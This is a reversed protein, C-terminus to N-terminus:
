YDWEPQQNSVGGDLFSPSVVSVTRAGEGRSHTVGIPSPWVGVPTGEWSTVPLADNHPQGVIWSGFRGSCDGPDLEFSPDDHVPPSDLDHYMMDGNGPTIWTCTVVGERPRRYAHRWTISAHFWKMGCLWWFEVPWNREVAADSLQGGSTPVHEDHAIGLSIEITRATGERVIAEADGYWNSWFGTTRHDDGFPPQPKWTKGDQVCGFWDKNMHAILADVPDRRAGPPTYTQPAIVRFIDTFRPYTNDDRLAALVKAKREVRADLDHTSLYRDITQWTHGKHM